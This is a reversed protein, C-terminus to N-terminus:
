RIVMGTVLALLIAGLLAVAAIVLQRMRRTQASVTEVLDANSNALHDRIQEMLETRAAESRRAAEGSEALREIVRVLQVNVEGGASLQKHMEDLLDTQKQSESSLDRLPELLEEGVKGVGADKLAEAVRRPLATEGTSLADLQDVLRDLKSMREALADLKVPLQKLSESTDV